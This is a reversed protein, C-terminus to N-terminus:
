TTVVCNESGFDNRVCYDAEPDNAWEKFDILFRYQYEKGKELELVLKFRGDSLKQMPNMETDWNNLEGM